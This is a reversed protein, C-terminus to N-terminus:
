NIVACRHSSLRNTLRVSSGVYYRVNNNNTIKYIYVAPANILLKEVYGKKNIDCWLIENLFSMNKNM